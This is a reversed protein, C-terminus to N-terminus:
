YPSRGVFNGAPTYDCVLYDANRLGGLSACRALGCGIQETGSWIVQTYHGCVKGADCHNPYKWYSSEDIWTNVMAGVSKWGASSAAINEGVSPYSWSSSQYAYQSQRNENHKWECKDAYDQAVNGLVYNWTLDPIGLKSRAINHAQLVEEIQSYTLSSEARACIGFLICTIVIQLCICRTFKTASM